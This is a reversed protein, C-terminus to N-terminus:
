NKKPKATTKSREIAILRLATAAATYKVEGEEDSLYLDVTGLVAPNGRMALAELAAARVVWNKDGVANVLAETTKPDRDKALVTAAAARAPSTDGKKVMKLASWGLSGFPIFGLAEHFGVEALKKPDKYEAAQALLGKGPKREGTLVEYYVGYGADDNLLLLAHAAALAVAPDKDETATKLKSISQRARMEGLAAAAAFRVEAAEDKIGTEAMKRAQPDNPILGTAHVAAARDAPKDASAGSRLVEWAQDKLPRPTTSPGSEPKPPNQPASPPTQQPAEQEKVQPNSQTEAPPSVTQQSLLPACTILVFSTKLLLSM